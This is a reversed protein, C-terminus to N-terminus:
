RKVELKQELYKQTWPCAKICRGCTVESRGITKGYEIIFHWCDLAKFFQDRDLGLHWNQGSVAKAPCVDQCERCDACSSENIPQGYDIPADTLVSTFRQAAGYQPTICLACKGIWGL